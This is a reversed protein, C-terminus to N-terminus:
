HNLLYLDGSVISKNSLDYIVADDESDFYLGWFGFYDKTQNDAERIKSLTYDNEPITDEFVPVYIEFPTESLGKTFYVYHEAITSLISGLQDKISNSYIKKVIISCDNLFLSFEEVDISIENLEQLQDLARAFSSNPPLDEEESLNGGWTGKQLHYLMELLDLNCDMEIVLNETKAAEKFCIRISVESFYDRELTKKFTQFGHLQPNDDLRLKLNNKFNELHISM